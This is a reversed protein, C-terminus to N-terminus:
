KYIMYSFCEKSKDRNDCYQILEYGYERKILYFNGHDVYITDESIKYIASNRIDDVCFNIKSLYKKFYKGKKEYFRLPCELQGFDGNTVIFVANIYLDDFVLRDDTEYADIKPYAIIPTTPDNYNKFRVFSAALPFILILRVIITAMYLARIGVYVYKLKFLFKFTSFKHEKELKPTTLMFIFDLVVFLIFYLAYQDKKYVWYWHLKFRLFLDVAIFCVAIVIFTLIYSFGRKSIIIDDKIKSFRSLLLATCFFLLHFIWCILIM